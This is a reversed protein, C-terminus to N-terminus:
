MGIVPYKDPRWAIGDTEVGLAKAVTQSAGFRIILANRATVLSPSVSVDCWPTAPAYAAIAALADAYNTVVRIGKAPDVMNVQISCGYMKAIGMAKSVNECLMIALDDTDRVLYTTPDDMLTTM